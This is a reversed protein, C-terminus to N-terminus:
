HKKRPGFKPFFPNNKEEALDEATAVGVIVDQGEYLHNTEVSETFANDSIGGKFFIAKLTNEPHKRIWVKMSSASGTTNTEAASSRPGKKGDSKDAPPKFRLAANPVKLVDKHRAAEITITATMNPFLKREPNDAYIVVPYTVVNQVSEAALRIQTVKGTFEEDYADVTFVVPQDPKIKGIDAEPVSAEVQIQHLDTAIQFLMQASMSAVVTQGESVKRDIVIGTVPSRITTYGLNAQSLKLSARSQEVAAEAVKLQAALSDRDAQASDLEAQSLMDRKVLAKSRELEREAQTLRTKMQEVTALNQHLMAVDRALHAEYVTPDIQAVLDNEKVLDNYDVFLKKIPGNVQTGVQVLKVPQVIGTARVHQILTGKEIKATRYSVPKNKKIFYYRTGMGVAILAVVILVYYRLKM